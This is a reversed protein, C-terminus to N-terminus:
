KPSRLKDDSYLVESIDPLQDAEPDFGLAKVWSRERIEIDKFFPRILAEFQERTTSEMETQLRIFECLHEKMVENSGRVFPYPRLACNDSLEDKKFHERLSDATAYIESNNNSDGELLSLADTLLRKYLQNELVEYHLAKDHIVELFGLTAAVIGAQEQAFRDTLNPMVVQEMTKKMGSLFQSIEPGM